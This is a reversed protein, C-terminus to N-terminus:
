AAHTCRTVPTDAHQYFVTTAEVPLLDISLTFASNKHDKISLFLTTLCPVIAASSSLYAAMTGGKENESRNFRGFWSHGCEMRLPREHSQFPQLLTNECLDGCLSAAATTSVLGFSRPRVDRPPELETDCSRALNIRMLLAEDKTLM